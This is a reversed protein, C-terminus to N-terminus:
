VTKHRKKFETIKDVIKKLLEPLEIERYNDITDNGKLEVVKGIAKNTRSDIWIHYKNAIHKM